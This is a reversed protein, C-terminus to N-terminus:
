RLSTGCRSCFLTETDDASVVFMKGCASCILTIEPAEGAGENIEVTAIEGWETDAEPDPLDGGASEVIGAQQSFGGSLPAAEPEEDTGPGDSAGGDEEDSELVFFLDAAPAEESQHQGDVIEQEFRLGADFCSDAEAFQGPHEPAPGADYDPTDLAPESLNGPFEILPPSDDDLEPAAGADNDPIALAPESLNGPFEILPPEGDELSPAFGPDTENVPIGEGPDQVELEPLVREDPEQPQNLSATFAEPSEDTEPGAGPEPELVFCQDMDSLPATDPPAEGASEGRHPAAGVPERERPQEEPAQGQDHQAPAPAAPANLTALLGTADNMDDFDIGCESPQRVESPSTEPGPRQGIVQRGQVIDELTRALGPSSSSAMERCIKTTVKQLARALKPDAEQETDARLKEFAKGLVVPFPDKGFRSQAAITDAVTNLAKELVTDRTQDIVELIKEVANRLARPPSPVSPSQDDRITAPEQKPRSSGGAPVAPPSFLPGLGDPAPDAKSRM